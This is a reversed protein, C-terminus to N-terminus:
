KVEEGNRYTVHEVTGDPERLVWHGHREGDVYNGEFVDGDETVETWRGEKKGQGLFELGPLYGTENHDAFALAAFIVTAFAFIVTLTKM